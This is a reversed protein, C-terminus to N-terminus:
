RWRHKQSRGIYAAGFDLEVQAILPQMDQYGTTDSVQYTTIGELRYATHSVVPYSYYLGREAAPPPGSFPCTKSACGPLSHFFEDFPHMDYASIWAPSGM